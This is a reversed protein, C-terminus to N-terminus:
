PLTDSNTVQPHDGNGSPDNATTQHPHQDASANPGASSTAKMLGGLSEISTRNPTSHSPDLVQRQLYRVVLELQPDAAFAPEPPRESRTMLRPDGRSFWRRNLYIQQLDTMAYELEAEPSIGWEDADTMNASRNINKLSPRHFRATTFKLASSGGSMEFVQQVTGKGYSRSGAIRARGLDQLCGAMIESASASEGNVLVVIPIEQDVLSGSTAQIVTDYARNRGITRVIVGESVLMDCMRVAAPLIGGPNFRLDIILAMARPRVRLLAAKFEEATREGFLVVRIYAIRPDDELFYEWSSDARIRDGYVSDVEIDARVIRLRESHSSDMRQVLLEVSTGIKGRMLKMSDTSSMGETSQGDIEMIIDGAQIGAHFAPTKPIPAIVTLRPIAPPGEIQIGIGGFKQEIVSHFEQYQQPPIFESYQDLKKVVGDMASLFLEHPDVPEIYNDQVLQIAHGIKGGYRMNRAQVACVICAVAVLFLINLNRAPVSLRRAFPLKIDDSDALQSQM